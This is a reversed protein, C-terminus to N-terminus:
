VAVRTWLPPEPSLPLAEAVGDPCVAAGASLPGDVPSGRGVASVTVRSEVAGTGGPEACEPGGASALAPLPDPAEAEHADRVPENPVPGDPGPSDHLRVEVMPVRVDPRNGEVYIKRRAPAAM